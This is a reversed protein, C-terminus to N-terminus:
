NHILSKAEAETRNVIDIRGKNFEGWSIRGDYLQSALQSTGSTAKEIGSAIADGTKGVYQRDIAALRQDHEEIASRWKILAGRESESAKSGDSLQKPTADKPNCPMKKPIISQFDPQSCLQLVKAFEVSSAATFARADTVDALYWGNANMCADFLNGNAVINSTSVGRYKDLYSLSQPQQSQQRCASDDKSFDDTSAGPKLWLGQPKNSACNALALSCSLGCAALFKM